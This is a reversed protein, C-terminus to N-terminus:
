AGAVQRVAQARIKSESIQLELRLLLAANRILLRYGPLNNDLWDFAASDSAENDLMRDFENGQEESLGVTIAEAVRDDLQNQLEERLGALFADPLDALGAAAVLYDLDLAWGVGSLEM